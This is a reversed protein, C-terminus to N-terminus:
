RTAAPRARTTFWPLIIGSGPLLSRIVIQPRAKTAACPPAFETAPKTTLCFLLAPPQIRTIKSAELVVSGGDTTYNRNTWFAVTVAQTDSLDIAPISVYQRQGANASVANGAEGTVWGVGNVLAATNGYGSSDVARTGSGDDFKWYGVPTQAQAPRAIVTVAFLIQALLLLSYSLVTIHKRIVM